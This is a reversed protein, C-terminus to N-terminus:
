SGPSQACSKDQRLMEGMLKQPDDRCLLRKFVSYKPNQLMIRLPSHNHRGKQPREPIRWRSIKRDPSGSLGHHGWAGVTRIWRFGAISSPIKVLKQRGWAGSIGIGMALDM